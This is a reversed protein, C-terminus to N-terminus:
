AILLPFVSETRTDYGTTVIPTLHTKKVSAWILVDQELIEPGLESLAYILEQGTM